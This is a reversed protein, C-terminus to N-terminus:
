RICAAGEPRETHVTVKSKVDVGVQAIGGDQESAVNVSVKPDALHAQCHVNVTLQTEVNVGVRVCYYGNPNMLNMKSAGGVNVSALVLVLEPESTAETDNVPLGFGGVSVGVIKKYSGVKPGLASGKWQALCKRLDDVEDQPAGPVDLEAVIPEAGDGDAAEAAVEQEAPLVPQAEAQTPAEPGRGQYAAQGQDTGFTADPGCSVLLMTITLAHCRQM